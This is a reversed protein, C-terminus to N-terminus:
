MNEEPFFDAVEPTTSARWLDRLIDLMREPDSIIPTFLASGRPLIM